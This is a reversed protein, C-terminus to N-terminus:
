DYGFSLGVTKTGKEFYVAHPNAIGRREACINVSVAILLALLIFRKKRM